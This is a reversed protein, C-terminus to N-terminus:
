GPQHLKGVYRKSVISSGDRVMQPYGEKKDNGYEMRREKEKVKTAAAM